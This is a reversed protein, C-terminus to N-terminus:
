MLGMLDSMRSNSVVELNKIGIFSSIFNSKASKGLRAILEKELYIEIDIEKLLEGLLPNSSANKVADLFQDKAKKLLVVSEVNIRIIPFDFDVMYPEKEYTGQVKGKLTFSELM